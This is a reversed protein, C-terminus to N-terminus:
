ASVISISFHHFLLFLDELLPQHLPVFKLETLNPVAKNHCFNTNLGPEVLFRLDKQKLQNRKVEVGLCGRRNKDAM